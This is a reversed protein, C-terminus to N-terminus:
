FEATMCGVCTLYDQFLGSVGGAKFRQRLKLLLEKGALGSRFTTMQTELWGIKDNRITVPPIWGFSHVLPSDMLFCRTELHENM